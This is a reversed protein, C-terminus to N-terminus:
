ASRVEAIAVIEAAHDPLLMAIEHFARIMQPTWQKAIQSNSLPKVFLGGRHLLHLGARHLDTTLSAPTYVRQHGANLDIENLTDATALLGMEVAALRHISQANPVTIFIRGGPNLAGCYKKLVSVPDTLHELIQIMFINDYKRPPQFDEFFSVHLTLNKPVGRARLREALAPSGEVSDMTSFHPALLATCHGGGTGLELATGSRFYPEMARLRYEINMTYVLDWEQELQAYQSAYKDLDM